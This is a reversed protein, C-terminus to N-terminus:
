VTAGGRGSNASPRRASEATRKDGRAGNRDAQQRNPEDDGKGTQGPSAARGRDASSRATATLRERAAEDAG